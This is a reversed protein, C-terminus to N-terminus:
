WSLDFPEGKTGRGNELIDRFGRTTLLATKAGTRQIIANTAITSGHKILDVENLGAGLRGLAAMIGEVHRPPTSPVKIHALREEREDYAVLDTFTGGVDIGIRFRGNM